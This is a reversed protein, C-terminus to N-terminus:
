EVLWELAEGETGFSRVQVSSKDMMAVFANFFVKMVGSVGLIALKEFKKRVSKDAYQRLQGMVERSVAANEINGLYLVKTPSALVMDDSEKMLLLVEQASLKRFDVYLVRKGKHDIWKAPM